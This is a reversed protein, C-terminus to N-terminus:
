VYREGASPVWDRRNDGAWTPYEHKRVCSWCGCRHSASPAEAKPSLPPLQALYPELSNQFSWPPPGSYNGAVNPVGSSPGTVNDKGCAVTIFALLMLVRLNQM